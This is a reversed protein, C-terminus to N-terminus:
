TRIHVRLRYSLQPLIPLALEKRGKPACRGFFSESIALCQDLRSSKLVSGRLGCVLIHSATIRSLHSDCVSFRYFNYETVEDRLDLAPTVGFPIMKM